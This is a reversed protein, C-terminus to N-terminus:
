RFKRLYARFNVLHQRRVPFASHILRDGHEFVACWQLGDLIRVSALDDLQEDNLRFM